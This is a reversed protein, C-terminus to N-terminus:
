PLRDLDKTSIATEYRVWRDGTARVEITLDSDTARGDVFRTKWFLRV